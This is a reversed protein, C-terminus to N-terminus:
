TGAQRTITPAQLDLNLQAEENIYHEASYLFWSKLTLGQKGLASYLRLKTEPDIEVVIRGSSGKAM